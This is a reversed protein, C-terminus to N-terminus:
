GHKSMKAKPKAAKDKSEKEEPKKEDSGTEGKEKDDNPEQRIETRSPGHTTLQGDQTIVMTTEPSVAIHTNLGQQVRPMGTLEVDGTSALYNAKESRGVAHSPPGGNPDPRDRVVGVNGEAIARELGQNEGKTIFVTLKESQMNFRPDIVKVHGTFIGMSKASDFFAQDSYIETTIPENPAADDGLLKNPPSKQNAKTEAGKAAGPATKAPPSGTSAAKDAAFGGQIPVMATLVLCLFGKM